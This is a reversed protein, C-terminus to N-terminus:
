SDDGLPEEIVVTVRRNAGSSGPAVLDNAGHGVVVLSSAPIGHAELFAAVAAARAYSILYNTTASGPTSAYGNIM